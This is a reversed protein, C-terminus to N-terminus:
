PRALHRWVNELVASVGPELATGAFNLTGAAFVKAGAATAYCTMEATRGPGHLNPMAALVITGRPTASTRADIEIGGHGFHLGNRLGTGRFAWPATRAGVVVYRGQHRGFDNDLYQVGILAAEPRGLSRWAGNKIMWRGRRDVRYLFNTTSTFMLNGGFNRYREVSDYAHTTMYEHHGLFVVLDYVRFLQRGSLQDLERDSLFDVHKGTQYLWRLLGLDYSRFRMPVGRHLHPRTLDVQRISNVTYWTDGWGDGDVDRHNYAEWTYTPFVVAVRRHGLWRPLLVFPAFGIRGDNASLRAFYFGSPGDPLRVRLDVSHNRSRAWRFAISGGVPVGHLVDQRYGKYISPTPEEGARFFQLRFSVADTSVVLRAGARPRYSQKTFGADVGLIRVVPGAPVSVDDPRLRGVTSRNGARDVATLRVLYTRAPM